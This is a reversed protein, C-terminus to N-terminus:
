EEAFLKEFYNNVFVRKPDFEESLSKLLPLRDAYARKMKTDAGSVTAETLKAWHPRTAQSGDELTVDLWADIIATSYELVGPTLLATLVEIWMFVDGEEGYAPSLPSDSHKTFRMEMAVNLPMVGQEGAFTKTMNMASHIAKYANSFDPDM